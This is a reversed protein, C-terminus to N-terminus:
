GGERRTCYTNYTINTHFTEVTIRCCTSLERSADYMMFFTSIIRIGITSIELVFAYAWFPRM